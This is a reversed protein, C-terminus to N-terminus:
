FEFNLTEVAELEDVALHNDFIYSQKDLGVATQRRESDETEFFTYGHRPSLCFDAANDVAEVADDVGGCTLLTDTDDVVLGTGTMEARHGIDIGDEIGGLNGVVAVVVELGKEVAVDDALM